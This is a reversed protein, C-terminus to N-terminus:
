YIVGEQLIDGMDMAVIDTAFAVEDKTLGRVQIQVEGPKFDLTDEQSLYLEIGEETITVDVNSNSKTIKRKGQRLTVYVTEIKNLEMGILKLLITPSTGRIM